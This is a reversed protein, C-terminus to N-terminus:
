PVPSGGPNTAPPAPAPRPFAMVGCGPLAQELRQVAAPTFRGHYVLLLKLRTLRALRTLADDDLAPGYLYLERLKPLGALADLGAWTVHPSEVLLNKLEPLGCLQALGTDTISTGYLEIVELSRVQGLRQACGDGIAPGSLCFCRLHRLKAICEVGDRTVPSDYLYLMEVRGCSAALRLDDPSPATLGTRIIWVRELLWGFREPLLGSLVPVEM